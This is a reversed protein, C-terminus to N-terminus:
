VKQKTGEEKEEEKEEEEAEAAEEEEEEEAEALAAQIKAIMRHIRSFSQLRRRQGSSDEAADEEVSTVAFGNNAAVANMHELDLLYRQQSAGGLDEILVDLCDYFKGPTHVILPETRTETHILPLDDGQPEFVCGDVLGRPWQNNGFMEQRYDLKIMDPFRYMLGSLVAQDDENPYIDLVELLKMLNEPYGVMLGANLYADSLVEGTTNLAVGEMFEHWDEINQSSYWLCDSKGSSCARRNRKGTVPDFYDGPSAHAMASVCCQAEASLVVANPSNATLKRYTELFRDVARAAVAENNPVNLIVDRADALIILKDKDAVELLPKLTQYKDGFGHYALKGGFVATQLNAFKAKEEFFHLPSIADHRLSDDTEYMLVVVDDRFRASDAAAFLCCAAASFLWGFRIALTPINM